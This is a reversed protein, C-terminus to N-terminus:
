DTRPTKENIKEMIENPQFVSERKSRSATTGEGTRGSDVSPTGVRFARAIFNDLAGFEVPFAPNSVDIVRLGSSGDAVYALDGVVEVDVAYSWDRDLGGLTILAVTPGPFLGLCAVFIALALLRRLPM